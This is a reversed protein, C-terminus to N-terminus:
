ACPVGLRSHMQPTLPWAQSARVTCVGDGVICVCMSESYLCMSEYYSCMSEYYLWM